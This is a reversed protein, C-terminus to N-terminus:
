IHETWNLLETTDSEKHGWSSCCVLDGQWWWSRSDVLVWIWQTSSAMWGDWGRNVGEEWDKGADPDKGILWTKAHPVWLTPTEAEVDTRGIFIWSQGKPHVPQIEKCNLPSELTKELVVTSFWWNKLVWSELYSFICSNPEYSQSRFIDAQLGIKGTKGSCLTDWEARWESSREHSTLFLCNYCYM